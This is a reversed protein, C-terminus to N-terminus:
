EDVEEEDVEEVDIVNVEAFYAYNEYDWGMEEAEQATEAEVEYNYEVIVNVNFLPM